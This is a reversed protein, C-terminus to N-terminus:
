WRLTRWFRLLATPVAFTLGVFLVNVAIVWVGMGSSKILGVYLVVSFAIGPLLLLLLAWKRLLLLGVGVTGAWAFLWFFFSYNPANYYFRSRLNMGYLLLFFCAWMLTAYGLLQFIVKPTLFVDLRDAIKLTTGEGQNSRMQGPKRAYSSM